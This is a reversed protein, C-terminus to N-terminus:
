FRIASGSKYCPSVVLRPRALRTFWSEDRFGEVALLLYTRTQTELLWGGKEVTRKLRGELVREGPELNPAAIEEAPKMKVASSTKAGGCASALALLLAVPLTSGVVNRM